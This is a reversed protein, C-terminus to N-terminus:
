KKRKMAYGNDGIYFNGCIDQVATHRKSKLPCKYIPFNDWFWEWM